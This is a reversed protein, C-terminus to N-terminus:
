RLKGSPPKLSWWFLSSSFSNPQQRNLRAFQGCNFWDNNKVLRIIFRPLNYRGWQWRVPIMTTLLDDKRPGQNLDTYYRVKGLYIRKQISKPIWSKFFGHTRESKKALKEHSWEGIDPCGEARPHHMCYTIHFVHCLIGTYLGGRLFFLCVFMHIEYFHGVIQRRNMIQWVAPLKKPPSQLLQIM